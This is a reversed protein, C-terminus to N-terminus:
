QGSFAKMANDCAAKQEGTLDDCAGQMEQLAGEAQKFMASMDEFTVDTPVSFKDQDVNWTNCQLDHQADFMDQASVNEGDPETAGEPVMSEFKKAIEEMEQVNMKQGKMTKGDWVHMLEGDNIMHIDDQTENADSRSDSRVQRGDTYFIGSDGEDNTWECTQAGGMTLLDKMGGMFTGNGEEEELQAPDQGQEQLLQPDTLDTTAAPKQCAAGAFMTFVFMLSVVTMKKNM